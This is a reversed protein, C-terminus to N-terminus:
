RLGGDEEEERDMAQEAEETPTAKALEPLVEGLRGEKDATVIEDFQGKLANMDLLGEKAAAERYLDVAMLFGQNIEEESYDHIGAETALNALDELIEKGGQYIVDDAPRNEGARRVMELVVIAATAALRVSPTLDQLERVEGLVDILDAPDEDLLELIGPRVEGGEYILVLGDKVFAEYQAQEEESAPEGGESDSVTGEEQALPDQQDAAPDTQPKSNLMGAM